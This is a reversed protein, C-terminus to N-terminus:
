YGFASMVTVGHYATTKVLLQWQGPELNLHDEGPHILVAPHTDSLMETLEWFGDRDRITGVVDNEIFEAVVICRRQTALAAIRRRQEDLSPISLRHTVPPHAMPNILYAVGFRYTKGEYHPQYISEYDHM